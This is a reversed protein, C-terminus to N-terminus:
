YGDTVGGIESVAEVPPVTDCGGFNKANSYKSICDEVRRKNCGPIMSYEDGVEINLPADDYLTIKKLASDWAKIKMPKLNTNLGTTFKIEGRVFYDDVEVRSSDYFSLNSDKGTISGTVLYDSMVPGDMNSDRPGSCRSVAYPLLEGGISQDFLTWPCLATEVRGVPQNLADILSMMEVTYSIGDYSSKGFLFLGMPEEDETPYAWDTAFLHMRAGDWKGSSLGDKSVGASNLLGDLDMVSPSSGGEYLLGSFEYGFDASYTVGNGMVIDFPYGALRIADGDVATIRLCYVIRRWNPGADKM